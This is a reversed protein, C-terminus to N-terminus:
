YFDVKEQNKRTKAPKEATKTTNRVTKITESGQKAKDTPTSLLLSKEHITQWFNVKDYFHSNFSWREM